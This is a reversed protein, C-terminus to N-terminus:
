EIELLPPAVELPPALAMLIIAGGRRGFDGDAFPTVGSARAVGRALVVGGRRRGNREREGELMGVCQVVAALVAAM